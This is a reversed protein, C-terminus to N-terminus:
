SRKIFSTFTTGMTVTFSTAMRLLFAKYLMRTVAQEESLGFMQLLQKIVPMITTEAEGPTM